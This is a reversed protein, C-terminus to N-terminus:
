VAWFLAINKLINNTKRVGYVHFNFKNDTTFVKTNSIPDHTRETFRERIHAYNQSLPKYFVDISEEKKYYWFLDSVIEKGFFLFICWTANIENWISFHGLTSNKRIHM